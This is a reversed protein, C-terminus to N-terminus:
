RSKDLNYRYIGSIELAFLKFIWIGFILICILM